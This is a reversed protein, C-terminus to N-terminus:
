RQQYPDQPPQGLYPPPPAQGHPAQTPPAAGPPPAYLPPMYTPPMHRPIRDRTSYWFWGVAGVFFVGLMALFLLWLASGGFGSSPATAAVREGSLVSQIVDDSLLAPHGRWQIIGEPSILFANPIGRVGYARGASQSLASGYRAGNRELWPGVTAETENSVAVIVLGREGYRDQLKNLHPV